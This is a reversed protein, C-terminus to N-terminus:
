GEGLLRLPGSVVESLGSQYPSAAAAMPLGRVYALAPAGSPGMYVIRGKVLMM